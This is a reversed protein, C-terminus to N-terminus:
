FTLHYLMTLLYSKKTSNESNRPILLVASLCCCGHQLDLLLRNRPRCATVADFFHVDLAVSLVAYANNEPTM